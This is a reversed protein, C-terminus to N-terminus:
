PTGATADYGPKAIALDARVTALLADRVARDTVADLPAPDDLRAALEARLELLSGDHGLLAALRHREADDNTTGLQAERQLIRCLNAAVRVQHQLHPPVAAIVQRELLDAVADLLEDADPRYQM